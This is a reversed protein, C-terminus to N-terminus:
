IIPDFLSPHPPPKIVELSEGHIGVVWLGPLTGGEEKDDRRVAICNSYRALRVEAIVGKVVIGDYDKFQVRDGIKMKVNKSM